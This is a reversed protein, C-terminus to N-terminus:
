ILSSISQIFSNCDHECNFKERALLWCRTKMKILLDNDSLVNNLLEALKLEDKDPFLFGCGPNEDLFNRYAITDTLALALGAMMGTFVKNGIAMQHFLDKDPQSGLLIDHCSALKVMEKPSAIPLIELFDSVNLDKAIKRIYEIYEKNQNGRLVLKVPKNLLPIARLVQDARSHYGITQGFWYISIHPNIERLSPNVIGKGDDISSSNHRVLPNLSLNNVQRIRESAVKSMTSIYSCNQLYRNEIYKIIHVPESPCDSLLDHIDVGFIANNKESAWAVAPLAQQQHAIYMNAKFSSAKLSLEYNMYEVANAIISESLFYHSVMESAKRRIRIYQWYLNLLINKSNTLDICEYNWKAQIIIEEDFKIWSQILRPTIVVVDFGNSALCNADRVLRPNRSPQGHGILCIKKM